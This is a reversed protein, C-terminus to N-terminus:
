KKVRQTAKKAARTVKRVVKKSGMTKKKTLSRTTTKSKRATGIGTKRSVKKAGTKKALSKRVPTKATESNKLVPTRRSTESPNGQGGSPDRGEEELMRETERNRRKVMYLYHKVYQTYPEPVQKPDFETPDDLILRIMASPLDEKESNMLIELRRCIEQDNVEQILKRMQNLLKSIGPTGKAM